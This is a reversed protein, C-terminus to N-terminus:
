RWPSLFRVFSLMSHHAFSVGSASESNRAAKGPHSHLNPCYFDLPQARKVAGMRGASLAPNHERGSEFAPTVVIRVFGKAVLEDCTHNHSHPLHFAVKM